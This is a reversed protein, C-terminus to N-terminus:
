FLNAGGSTDRRGDDGMPIDLPGRGM